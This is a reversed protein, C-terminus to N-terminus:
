WSATIPTCAFLSACIGGVSYGVTFITVAWWKWSFQDVPFLHRYFFLISLKIFLIAGSYVIAAIVWLRLFGPSLVAMSVNWLHRGM